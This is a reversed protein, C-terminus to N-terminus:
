VSVNSFTRQFPYRQRLKDLYTKVVPFGALLVGDRMQSAWWIDYGLVCDAATFRGGCVYDRRKMFKSFYAAFVNFKEIAANIKENDKDGEPTHYWQEFLLELVSDLTSTAYLIWNYYNKRHGSEPLCREYLEALYLCIAGSELITDQGEIELAPVTGHPHTKSKYSTVLDKDKSLPDLYIVQIDSLAQLETILWLCRCSRFPQYHYLKM